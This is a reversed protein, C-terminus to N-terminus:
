PLFNDLERLPQAAVRFLVENLLIVRWRGLVDLLTLELRIPVLWEDEYVAQSSIPLWLCGRWAVVASILLVMLLGEVCQVVMSKGGTEKSRDRASLAFKQQEGDVM